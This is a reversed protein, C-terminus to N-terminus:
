ARVVGLRPEVALTADKLVNVVEEGRARSITKNRAAAYKRAFFEDFLKRHQEEVSTSVTAFASVDSSSAARAHFRFEHM